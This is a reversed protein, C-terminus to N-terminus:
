GGSNTGRLVGIYPLNRYKGAFDLGYGVVFLDPITFGIFDPQLLHRRRTPKDLLTCVTVSAAGMSGLHTLLHHLTNGTDVIDEVLLVHKGTLHLDEWGNSSLPGPVVSEGYSRAAVFEVLIPFNLRRLLDSLFIFSGKLVCLAITPNEHPTTKFTQNLQKALEEVREAIAEASLFPVVPDEPAPNSPKPAIDM